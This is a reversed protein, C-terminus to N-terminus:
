SAIAQEHDPLLKKLSYLYLRGTRKGVVGVCRGSKGNIPLDIFGDVLSVEESIDDTTTAREIAKIIKADLKNIKM